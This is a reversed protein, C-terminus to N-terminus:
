NTPPTQGIVCDLGAEKHGFRSICTNIVDVSRAERACQNGLEKSGFRNICLNIVEPSIAGIACNLGPEKSGFRNICTNVVDVSRAAQACQNGQDNNGFRNVCVNIVKSRNSNGHDACHSQVSQALQLYKQALDDCAASCQRSCDRLQDASDSRVVTAPLCLCLSLMLGAPSRVKRLHILAVFGALGLIVSMSM